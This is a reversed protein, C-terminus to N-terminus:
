QTKSVRMMGGADWLPSHTKRVEWRLDTRRAHGSRAVWDQRVQCMPLFPVFLWGSWQFGRWLNMAFHGHPNLKAFSILHHSQFFFMKLQVENIHPYIITKWKLNAWLWFVFWGHLSCWYDPWDLRLMSVDETDRLNLCGLFTERYTPIPIEWQRSRSIGLLIM